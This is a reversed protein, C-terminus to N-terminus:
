TYLSANEQIPLFVMWTGNVLTTLLFKKYQGTMTTTYTWKVQDSENLSTKQYFYM